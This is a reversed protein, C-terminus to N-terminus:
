QRSKMGNTIRNPFFHVIFLNNIIVANLFSYNEYDRSYVSPCMIDTYRYRIFVTFLAMSFHVTRITEPICPYVCEMLIDM